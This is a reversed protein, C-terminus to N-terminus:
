RFVVAPFREARVDIFSQLVGPLVSVGLEIATVECPETFRRRWLWSLSRKASRAAIRSYETVGGHCTEDSRALVGGVHPLCLRKVVAEPLLAGIVPLRFALPHRFAM